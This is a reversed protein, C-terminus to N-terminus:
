PAFAITAVRGSYEAVFLTGTKSDLEMDTPRTLCSSVVAPTSAPTDFRLILGPSGFFPGVSAHQLVLYDANGTTKFPIVDIASKLGTIFPSQAGTQPDVQSVLSGSPAFPFGGFLAVLLERNALVVGTPVADTVPPGLAPFMPNPLPAFEALISSSGSPIDVRWVLNRGGDTVYLQDGVALLGFPNSLQINGPFTPLPNAVYNPFDAVRGSL